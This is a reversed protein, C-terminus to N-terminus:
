VRLSSAQNSSLPRETKELPQVQSKDIPTAITTDKILKRTTVMNFEEMQNIFFSFVTSFILCLNSLNQKSFKQIDEM